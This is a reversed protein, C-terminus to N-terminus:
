RLISRVLTTISRLQEEQTSTLDGLVNIYARTGARFRKEKGTRKVGHPRYARVLSPSEIQVVDEGRSKVDAIDKSSVANQWEIELPEEDNLIKDMTDLSVKKMAVLISQESLGRNRLLDAFRYRLDKVLDADNTLKGAADMLERKLRECDITSMDQSRCLAEAIREIVNRRPIPSMERELRSLYASDLNAEKALRRLSIKGNERTDRIFYGFGNTKM